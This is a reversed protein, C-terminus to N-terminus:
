GCFRASLSIKKSDDLYIPTYSHMWPRAQSKKTRRAPEGSPSSSINFSINFTYFRSVPVSQLILNVTTFYVHSHLVFLSYLAFELRPLSLHFLTRRHDVVH